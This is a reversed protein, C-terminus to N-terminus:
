PSSADAPDQNALPQYLSWVGPALGPARPGELVGRLVDWDVLPPVAQVCTGPLQCTDGPLPCGEPEVCAGGGTACQGAGGIACRANAGCSNDSALPDCPVATISPLELVANWLASSFGHDTWLVRADRSPPTLGQPSGPFAVCLPAGGNASVLAQHDVPQDFAHALAAAMGPSGPIPVPQAGSPLSALLTDLVTTLVVVLGRSELATWRVLGEPAGTNGASTRLATLAAGLAVRADELSIPTDMATPALLQASLETALLNVDLVRGPTDVVGDPGVTHLQGQTVWQSVPHSLGLANRGAVRYQGLTLLAARSLQVVGRLMEADRATLNLSRPLRTLGPPLQLLQQAPPAAAAEALDAAVPVLHQAVSVAADRLWPETVEASCQDLLAVLARTGSTQGLVSGLWSPAAAPLDIVSGSLTVSGPPGTLELDTLVVSLQPNHTTIVQVSGPAGPAWVFTDGGSILTVQGGFDGRGLVGAADAPLAVRLEEAATRAVLLRTGDPGVRMHVEDAVHQSLGSADSLVFAADGARDAAAQAWVGGDAVLADVLATQSLGCRLLVDSIPATQLVLLLDTVARGLAASPNPGLSRAAHYAARAGVVDARWLLADGSSQPPVDPAWRTPVDSIARRDVLVVVAARDLEAAVFDAGVQAGPLPVLMGDQDLTAVRLESPPVTLTADVRWEVRAPAQLTGEELHLVHGHGVRPTPALDARLRALTMRLQTDVALAPVRLTVVGDPTKLVTARTRTVTATVPDLEVPGPGGSGGVGAERAADATPCGALSLVLLAVVAGAQKQGM